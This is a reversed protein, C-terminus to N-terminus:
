RADCGVRSWLVFFPIISTVCLSTGVVEEMDADDVASVTDEDPGCDWLPNWLKRASQGHHFLAGMVVEEM